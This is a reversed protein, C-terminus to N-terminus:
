VAKLQRATEALVAPILETDVREIRDPDGLEKIFQAWAAPSAERDADLLGPNIQYTSAIKMLADYSPKRKRTLWRSVTNESVGLTEAAERASTHHLGFLRHLPSPNPV